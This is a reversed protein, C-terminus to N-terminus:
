SNSEDYVVRVPEVLHSMHQLNEPLDDEDDYAVYQLGTIYSYGIVGPSYWVDYSLEGAIADYLEHSDSRIEDLEMVLRLMNEPLPTDPDLSDEIDQEIPIGLEEGLGVLDNCHVIAKHHKIFIRSEGPVIGEPIATRPIRKSVGMQKAEEIFERVTYHEEGVWMIIDTAMIKEKVGV